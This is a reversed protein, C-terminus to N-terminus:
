GGSGEVEGIIKELLLTDADDWDAVPDQLFANKKEALSARNEALWEDSLRELRLHANPISLKRIALWKRNGLYFTPGEPSAQYCFSGRNEERRLQRSFIGKVFLRAGRSDEPRSFEDLLCPFAPNEPDFDPGHFNAKGSLQRYAARMRRPAGLHRVSIDQRIKLCALRNRIGRDFRLQVGHLLGPSELDAKEQEGAMLYTLSSVSLGGKFFPQVESLLQFVANEAFGEPALRQQELSSLPLDCLARRSQETFESLRSMVDLTDDFLLDEWSSWKDDPLRQKLWNVSQSLEPEGQFIFNPPPVVAGNEQSELYDASAALSKGKQEVEGALQRLVELIASQRLKDYARQRYGAFGEQVEKLRREFQGAKQHADMIKRRYGPSFWRRATRGLKGWFPLEQEEQRRCYARFAEELGSLMEVPQFAEKNGGTAQELEAIRSKLSVGSEPAEELLAACYRAAASIGQGPRCMLNILTERFQGALRSRAEEPVTAVAQELAEQGYRRFAAEMASAWRSYDPFGPPEPFVPSDMSPFLGEVVTQVGGALQRCLQPIDAPSAEGRRAGPPSVALGALKEFFAARALPAFQEAEWSREGFGFTAYRFYKGGNLKPILPQTQLDEEPLFLLLHTFGDAICRYFHNVEQEGARWPGDTDFLWVQSYPAVADPSQQLDVELEWLAAYTRALAEDGEEMGPLSEQPCGPLFYAAEFSVFDFDYQELFHRGEWACFRLFSGGVPAWSAGILIVRYARSIAPPASGRAAMASAQRLGAISQFLLRRFEDLFASRIRLAYGNVSLEEASVPLNAGEAKEAGINIFSVLQGLLPRGESVKKLSAEM